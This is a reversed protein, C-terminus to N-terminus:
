SFFADGKELAEKHLQNQIRPSWYLKPDTKKIENYFSMTGPKASNGAGPISVVDSKTPVASTASATTLGIQSFFAKPSKIAIDQLFEVSVGLEAAKQKVVENARDETGFEAVLRESVSNINAAARASASEAATIARIKEALEDDSLAKGVPTAPQHAEVVPDSNPNSSQQRQALLEEVKLRAALETRLEEQERKLNEIYVDAEYKGRALEDVSKFKKDEGVLAELYNSPREEANFVDM